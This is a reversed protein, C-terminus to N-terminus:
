RSDVLNELEKIKSKLLDRIKRLEKLLTDALSEEMEEPRFRDILRYIRECEKQVDQAEYQEEAQLEDEAERLTYGIDKLMKLLVEEVRKPGIDSQEKLEILKRVRRLDLVRRLARENRKQLFVKGISPMDYHKKIKPLDLMKNLNKDVEHLFDADLGSNKCEQRLKPPYSGVVRAMKVESPKMTLRKAVRRDSEGEFKEIMHNVVDVREWSDWDERNRHLHLMIEFKEDESPERELVMAPVEKIGLDKACKWRREGDILMKRDSTEVETVLLPNLIGMRSISERLRDMHEGEFSERPNEPNRDVMTVDIQMLTREGLEFPM